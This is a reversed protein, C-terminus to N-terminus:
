PNSSDSGNRRTLRTSGIEIYADLEDCLDELRLIVEHAQYLPDDDLFRELVVECFARLSIAARIKPDDV